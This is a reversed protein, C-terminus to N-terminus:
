MKVGQYAHGDIMEQSEDVDMYGHNDPEHLITTSYGQITAPVQNDDHNQAHQITTFYGQITAPAKSGDSITSARSNHMHQAHNRTSPRASPQANEMHENSADTMPSPPGVRAYTGDDEILELSGSEDIPSPNNNDTRTTMQHCRIQESSRKMILFLVNLFMIYTFPKLTCM